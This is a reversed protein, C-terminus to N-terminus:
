PRHAVIHFVHWHKPAGLADTGDKEAEELFEVTLPALLRGVEPRTHHSRGPISAWSDRDGFLQGCFRGGPGLARLIREWLDDFRQPQCFPLAFSAVVLDAPPIEVDEMLAQVVSLHPDDAVGPRARLRELAEPHGDIATVAWGRRLLEATDRGEGCALDVACRPEAPAPDAEFLALARLLTDRPAGDVADYYRPWERQLPIEDWPHLKRDTM